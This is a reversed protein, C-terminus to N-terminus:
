SSAVAPPGTLREEILDATFVQKPAILLDTVSHQNLDYTMCIMNLDDSTELRRMM